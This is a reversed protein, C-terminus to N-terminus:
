EGQRGNRDLPNRQATSFWGVLSLAILPGLVSFLLFNSLLAISAFIVAGVVAAVRSPLLFILAGLSEVVVVKRSYATAIWRLTEPEFWSRMLNFFWFDREIFYIEYFVQGSWYEGTWKGVAGGLLVVSILVRSLRAAKRGLEAQEDIGMRSAYWLGFVNCWWVTTFTMDNYSGQHLLMVTAAMLGVGLAITRNRDSWTIATFAYAGVATLFATRLVIASQLWMPFFSDRIPIRLYVADAVLFFSIKWLLGVLMGLMLLQIPFRRDQVCITFWRTIRSLMTPQSSISNAAITTSSM